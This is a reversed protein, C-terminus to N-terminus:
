VKRQYILKSVYALVQNWKSCFGDVDSHNEVVFDRANKSIKSCDKKLCKEILPALEGLGSYLFGNENNKIFSFDPINESIVVCGAAMAELLKITVGNWTNIYIKTKNLIEHSPLPKGFIGDHPFRNLAANRLIDMSQPPANNDFSIEIEKELPKYKEIDVALPINMSLVDPRTDWSGHASNSTSVVINGIHNGLDETVNLSLGLPLLQRLESGVHDITILPLHLHRSLQVLYEFEQIRDSALICDFYSVNGAEAGGNILFINPPLSEMDKNWSSVGPENIVYIECNSKSLLKIFKEHERCLCLCRVTDNDNRIASRIINNM